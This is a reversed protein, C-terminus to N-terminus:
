KICYNKSQRLLATPFDSPDAAHSSHGLIKVLPKIGRKQAENNNMLVLAAAGDAISSSNAATITGDKVFAAPLQPM